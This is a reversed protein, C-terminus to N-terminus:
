LSKIISIIKNESNTPEINKWLFLLAGFRTLAMGGRKKDGSLFDSYSAGGVSIIDVLFPDAFIIKNIAPNLLEILSQNVLHNIRKDLSRFVSDSQEKGLKSAQCYHDIIGYLFLLVRIKRYSELNSLKEQSSYKLIKIIDWVAEIENSLNENKYHNIESM